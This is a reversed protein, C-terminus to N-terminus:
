SNLHQNILSQGTTQQVRLAASNNILTIWTSGNDYPLPYRIAINNPDTPICVNESNITGECNLQNVSQCNSESTFNQNNYSLCGFNLAGTLSNGVYVQYCDRSNDCTNNPENIECLNNVCRANSNKLSERCQADGICYTNTPNIDFVESQISKNTIYVQGDINFLTDPDNTESNLIISYVSLLPRGISTNNFRFQSVRLM